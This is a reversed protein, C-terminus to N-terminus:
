HSAEYWTLFLTGDVVSTGRNVSIDVDWGNAAVSISVGSSSGDNYDDGADDVTVPSAYGRVHARHSVAHTHTASSVMLRSELLIQKGSAGGIVPVTAVVGATGSGNAIPIVRHHIVGLPTSTTGNEGGGIEIDVDGALATGTGSTTRQGSALTLKGGDNNAGSPSQGQGAAIKLADGDTTGTSALTGAYIERAGSGDDNLVIARASTTLEYRKISLAIDGSADLFHVSTGFTWYADVVGTSDIPFPDATALNLGSNLTLDASAGFSSSANFTHAGSWTLAGAYTGGGDGNVASVLQIDLANVEAAFFVANAGWGSANIRTFNAM